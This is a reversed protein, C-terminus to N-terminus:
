DPGVHTAFFLVEADALQRRVREVFTKREDVHAAMIKQEPLEVM